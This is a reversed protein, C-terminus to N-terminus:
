SEIFSAYLYRFVIWHFWYSFLHFDFCFFSHLILSVFSPFLGWGIHGPSHTASYSYCKKYPLMTDFILLHVMKHGISERFHSSLLYMHLFENCPSTIYRLSLARAWCASPGENPEWCLFFNLFVFLIMVISSLLSSDVSNRIPLLM